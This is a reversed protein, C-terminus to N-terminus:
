LLSHSIELFVEEVSASHFCKRLLMKFCDAGYLMPFCPETSNTDVAVFLLDPMYYSSLLNKIFSYIIMINISM